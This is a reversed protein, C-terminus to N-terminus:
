FFSINQFVYTKNNNNKPYSNMNQFVYKILNMKLNMKQRWVTGTQTELVVVVTNYSAVSVFSCLCAFSVDIHLALSHGFTQRYTSLLEPHPCTSEQGRCGTLNIGKLTPLNAATTKVINYVTM